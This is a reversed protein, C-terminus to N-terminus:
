YKLWTRVAYNREMLPSFLYSNTAYPSNIMNYYVGNGNIGSTFMVKNSTMALNSPTFWDMSGGYVDLIIDSSGYLSNNSLDIFRGRAVMGPLDQSEWAVFAYDENMIVQQESQSGTTESNIQFDSAGFPTESNIDLIRGRIEGGITADLWVVVAKKSSMAVHPFWNQSGSTTIQFDSPATPNGTTIDIFRGYINTWNNSWVVLAKDSYNAVRAQFGDLTTNIEFDGAGLPGPSLISMDVTRGNVTSAPQSQWIVLGIGNNAVLFADKQENANTSSILFDNTVVPSGTTLDIVRGRIDYNTGNDRSEWVVLASDGSIVVRPNTQGNANTTSIPFDPGSFIGTTIDIVRGRIDGSADLDYSTWVIIARNGSADVAPDSQNATDTTNVPIKNASVPKGTNMDIIRAFLDIGVVNDHFVVIALDNSEAIVSWDGTDSLVQSKMVTYQDLETNHSYFPNKFKSSDAWDNVFSRGGTFNMYLPDFNMGQCSPSIYNMIDLGYSCNSVPANYLERGDAIPDHISNWNAIGTTNAYLVMEQKTQNAHVSVEEGAFHSELLASQLTITHFNTLLRSTNAVYGTDLGITVAYGTSFSGEVLTDNETAPVIRIVSDGTNATNNLTGNFSAGVKVTTGVTYSTAAPIPVALTIEYVNDYNNVSSIGYDVSGVTITNGNEANGSGLIGDGGHSEIITEGTLYGTSLYGKYQKVNRYDEPWAVERYSNNPTTRLYIDVLGDPGTGAIAGPVEICVTYTQKLFNWYHGCNTLINGADAVPAGQTRTISHWDSANPSGFNVQFDFAEDFAYAITLEKNWSYSFSDYLQYNGVVGSTGWSPTLYYTSLLEIEIEVQEGLAAKGLYTSNADPYFPNPGYTDNNWRTNFVVTDNSELPNKGHEQDRGLIDAVTIYTIDYNDGAWVTSYIGEQAAITGNFLIPNGSADKAMRTHDFYRGNDFTIWLGSAAMEADSLSGIQVRCATVPNGKIDNGSVLSHCPLTNAHGDISKIAYTYVIPIQDEVDTGSFDFIYHEYEIPTGYCAIRDLATKLSIGPTVTNAPGTLSCPDNVDTTDVDFAAVRFMDRMYPGILKILATRGKANEEIIKINSGTFSSSLASKYNSDAVHTLTYDVLYLKPTYGQALAKEMEATNLGSLEIVYPGFESAGYLDVAFESYDSNRIKFSQIPILEGNSSEFLLSCTINSIRVPMNISHNNIYLSARVLGADPGISYGTSTKSSKDQRYKRAATGASSNKVSTAKRDINNTFPRNKFIDKTSGRSSSNSIDGGFEGSGSAAATAPEPTVGIGFSSSGSKNKSYTSRFNRKGVERQHFKESGEDRRSEIDSSTIDNAIESTEGTSTKEVVIKLTIPATISSEITPYDAVWFNGSIESSNILGDGDFDSALTTGTPDVIGLKSLSVPTGPAQNFLNHIVVDDEDTNTSTAVTETKLLTATVTAKGACHMSFAALLLAIFVAANFPSKKSIVKNQVNMIIVKINM